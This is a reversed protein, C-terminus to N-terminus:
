VSVGFQRFRETEQPSFTARHILRMQKLITSKGSDGSGLLVKVQAAMKAKADKPAKKAQRHLQCDRNSVEAGPAAPSSICGGM